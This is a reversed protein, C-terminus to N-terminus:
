VNISKDDIDLLCFLNNADSLFSLYSNVYFDACKTILNSVIKDCGENIIEMTQITCLIALKSHEFEYVLKGDSEVKVEDVRRSTNNCNRYSNDDLIPYFQSEGTM